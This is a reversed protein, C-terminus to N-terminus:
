LGVRGIYPVHEKLYQSASKSPSARPRSITALFPLRHRTTFSYGARSYSIILQNHKNGLHVWPLPKCMGPYYMCWRLTRASPVMYSTCSRPHCSLSRCHPKRPPLRSPGLLSWPRTSCSTGLHYILLLLLSLMFLLLLLLEFIMTLNENNMFQICCSM